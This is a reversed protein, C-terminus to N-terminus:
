MLPTRSSQLWKYVWDQFLREVSITLQINIQDILGQIPRDSNHNIIERFEFQRRSYYDLFNEQEIWLLSNFSDWDMYDEIYDEFHNRANTNIYSEVMAEIHYYRFPDIVAKHSVKEEFLYKIIIESIDESVLKRIQKYRNFNLRYTEYALM